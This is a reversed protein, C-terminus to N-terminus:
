LPPPHTPPQRALGYLTDDLFSLPSGDALYHPTVTIAPPVAGVFTICRLACATSKLDDQTDCCPCCPMDTQDAMMVEPPSPSPSVVAEQIAPSVVVSITILAALIARIVVMGSSDSSAPGADVPSKTSIPSLRSPTRVSLMAVCWRSAPGRGNFLSIGNVPMSPRDTRDSRECENGTHDYGNRSCSRGRPILPQRIVAIM